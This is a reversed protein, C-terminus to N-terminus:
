KKMISNLIDLVNEHILGNTALVNNKTLDWENGFFDTVKGGSERVLLVGAAVDWPKMNNYVFAEVRGCATFALELAASKMRTIDRVKPKLSSFIQIINKIDEPTKGHCYAASSIELESKKSVHIRKGNLFAGKGKQAVFMEDTVPAYTVGLIIEGSKVLGISTNFFPHMMSYNTTGDIPDIIWKYESDTKELGSEEGLIQHNPYKEKIISIIKKEALSDVETVDEHYSKEKMNHKKKFNAMIIKGSEMAANIAVEKM